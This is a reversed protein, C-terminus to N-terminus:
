TAVPELSPIVGIQQMLGLSDWNLWKEVIRGNDFRLIAIGSVNGQRGTPPIGLLEGLHTGRAEWRYVVEDDEAILHTIHYHVDPFAARYLAVIQRTGAAGHYQGPTGPDYYLSNDAVLEDALDLNGQNWLEEVYRRTLKKNEETSM